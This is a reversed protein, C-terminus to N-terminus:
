RLRLTFDISIERKWRNWVVAENITISSVGTLSSLSEISGEALSSASFATAVFQRFVTRSTSTTERKLPSCNMIKHGWVSNFAALFRASLNNSQMEVWWESTSLKLVAMPKDSSLSDSSNVSHNSRVMFASYWDFRWPYPLTVTACYSWHVLEALNFPRLAM